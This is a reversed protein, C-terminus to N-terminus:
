NTVLGLYKFKTVNEFTKKAIMLNHNQGVNHQHHVVMHKTKETNVELYVEM